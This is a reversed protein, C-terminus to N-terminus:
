NVKKQSFSGKGISALSVRPFSDDDKDLFKQYNKKESSEPSSREERALDDLSIIEELSFKRPPQPLIAKKSRSTGDECEEKLNTLMKEVESKITSSIDMRIEKKELGRLVSKLITQALPNSM